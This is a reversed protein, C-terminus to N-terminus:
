MVLWCHRCRWFQALVWAVLLAAQAHCALHCGQGVTCACFSHRGAGWRLLAEAAVPAQQEREQLEEQSLAAPAAARAAPGRRRGRWQQLGAAGQQATPAPQDQQAGGQAQQRWHEMAINLSLHAETGWRAEQEDGSLSRSSPTGSYTPSYSSSPHSYTPSGPTSPPDLFAVYLTDHAELNYHAPTLSLDLVTWIEPFCLELGTPNCGWRACCAALLDGLPATYSTTLQVQPCALAAVEFNLKVARLPGTTKHKYSSFSPTCRM